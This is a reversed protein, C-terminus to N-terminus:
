GSFYQFVNKGGVFCSFDGQDFTAFLKRSNEDVFSLKKVQIKRFDEVKDVAVILVPESFVDIDVTGAEIHIESTFWKSGHGIKQSDGGFNIFEGSNAFFAFLTGGSIGSVGLSQDSTFRGAVIIGDNFDPCGFTVSGTTKFVM